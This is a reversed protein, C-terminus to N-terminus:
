MQRNWPLKCTPKCGFSSIVEYVVRGTEQKLTSSASMYIFPNCINNIFIFSQIFHPVITEFLTGLIIVMSAVISVNFTLLLFGVTRLIKKNAQTSQSTSCGTQTSKDSNYNIAHVRKLSRKLKFLVFLYLINTTIWPIAYLVLLYIKAGADLPGFVHEFRCQYLIEEHRGWFVYPPVMALLVGIWIILSERSYNYSDMNFPVHIRTAIRCRHICVAMIHYFSVNQTTLLLYSFTACMSFPLGTARIFMAANRPLLLFGVIFDSLILYVLQHANKMWQKKKNKLICFLLSGNVIITMITFFLLILGGSIDNNQDFNNEATGNLLDSKLGGGSNTSNNIM